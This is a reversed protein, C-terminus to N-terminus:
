GAGKRETQIFKKREERDKGVASRFKEFFVM